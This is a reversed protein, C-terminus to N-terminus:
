KRRREKSQHSMVLLPEASCLQSSRVHINYMYFKRRGERGGGGEGNEGRERKGGGRRRGRGRERERDYRYKSPNLRYRRRRNEENERRSCVVSLLEDPGEAGLQIM